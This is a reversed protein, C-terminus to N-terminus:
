WRYSLRAEVGDPRTGVALSFKSSPKYRSVIAYNIGLALASSAAVDYWHHKDAYVRSYGAFTAFAYAPVGFRWGYRFWLYNAAAFASASTDSPFSHDDSGDPRKERVLHSLGYSSGVSLLWSSGLEAFGAGDERYLSYAGAAAPLGFAIVQGATEVSKTSAESSCQWSLLAALCAFGIRVSSM